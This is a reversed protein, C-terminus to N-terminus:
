ALEVAYLFGRDQAYALAYAYSLAAVPVAEVPVNDDAAADPKVVM